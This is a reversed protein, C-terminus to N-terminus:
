SAGGRGGLPATFGILIQLGRYKYEDVEKDLTLSTSFSTGPSTLVVEGTKALNTLGWVYRAELFGSVRGLDRSLGGGVGVGVDLRETVPLLDGEFPIGTDSGSLKSTLVYGFTPGALLYPRTTEGFGLTLFVPLELLSAELTVEEQVAASGASGGKRIYMPELRLGLVDTFFLDVVAGVVFGTENSHDAGDQPAHYGSSNAGGILGVRTQAVAPGALLAILVASGLAIQKWM